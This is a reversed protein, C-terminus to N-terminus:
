TIGLLQKIRAIVATDSANDVLDIKGTHGLDRALLRMKDNIVLLHCDRWNVKGMPHAFDLLLALNQLGTRSTVIFLSNQPVTISQTLISLDPKACHREYCNFETVLAGKQRLHPALLGRGGLGKFIAIKLNKVTNLIPLACLGESSYEKEPLLIQKFGYHTLAQATGPGQAIIRTTPWHLPNLHCLNVAFHVATPSIFLAINFFDPGFRQFYPGVETLAKTDITPFSIANIGLIKLQHLLATTTSLPRTVVVYQIPTINM